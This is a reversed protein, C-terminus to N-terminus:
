NSRYEKSISSFIKYVRYTRSHHIPFNIFIANCIITAKLIYSKLLFTVKVFNKRFFRPPFIKLNWVTLATLFNRFIVWKWKQCFNRSPLTKSFFNSFLHNSSINKPSIKGHHGFRSLISKQVFEDFPLHIIKLKRLFQM